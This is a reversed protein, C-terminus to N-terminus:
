TPRAPLRGGLPLLFRPRRERQVTKRINTPWQAARHGSVPCGSRRSEFRGGPGRPQRVYPPYKRVTRPGADTVSRPVGALRTHARIASEIYSFEQDETSGTVRLDELEPCCPRAPAPSQTAARRGTQMVDHEATAGSPCANHLYSPRTFQVLAM